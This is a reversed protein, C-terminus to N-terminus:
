LSSCWEELLYRKVHNKCPITYSENEYSSMLCKISEEKENVDM